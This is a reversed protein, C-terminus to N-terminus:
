LEPACPEGAPPVVRMEADHRVLTFLGVVALLALGMVGACAAFMHCTGTGGDSGHLVLLGLCALLHLPVRFWNLVGAREAEPIVKRRLFGVSPFYLGCALEILLFAVLSEAPREQGPSTSFSLMLLSFVVLLVALSLLHVPQLHYRKSTAARYLSAGLLGAAMFGSFVVGLPAGHPDLVPTWLFVFIYVVSEFLAQVTGLLLVRRDALVCRLGGLCTRSFPRPRGHSEDWDRLALGGALALLPVAAVFPAAPGLGLGGAAAEAALGAGVALVHNWFAARAFTAPVWDPPFDHRELHEHVYWAEFASGLLASALGGLARGLLLVFYDRSLKTLCCAAATLSSLVCARRRGLRDALPGSVLGFLVASALGCVYLIAIQGELFRYHRYLKYLYPAQLWDAALAPFYVRFFGRQFRVFAPNGGPPGPPRAGCAWLELGLCSALLVALSLYAAVLM